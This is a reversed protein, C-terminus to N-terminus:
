TFQGKAANRTLVLVTPAAFYQPPVCGVECSKYHEFLSLLGVDSRSQIGRLIMAPGTGSDLEVVDNFTNSAAIGGMLLNVM